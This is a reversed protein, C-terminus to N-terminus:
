NRPLLILEKKPCIRRQGDIIILSLEKKRSAALLMGKSEVGRITAPELNSVVVVM